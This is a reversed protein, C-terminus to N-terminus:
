SSKVARGVRWKEGGCVVYVCVCVCVYVRVASADQRNGWLCMSPCSAYSSPPLTHLLRAPLLLGLVQANLVYSSVYRASGRVRRPHIHAILRPVCFTAVVRVLVSLPRKGQAAGSILANGHGSQTDLKRPAHADGGLAVTATQDHRDMMQQDEHQIPIGLESALVRRARLGRISGAPTPNGDASSSPRVDLVPGVVVSGKTSRTM